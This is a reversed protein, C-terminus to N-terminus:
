TTCGQMMTLVTTCAICMIHGAICGLLRGAITCSPTTQFGAVASRLVPSHYEAPTALHLVCSAYISSCTGGDPVHAAFLRNSVYELDEWNINGLQEFTSSMFVARAMGGEKQTKVLNNLLLHTLYYHGFYNTGVTTQM